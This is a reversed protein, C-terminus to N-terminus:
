RATLEYTQGVERVRALSLEDVADLFSQRDTSRIVASMRLRQVRTEPIVIKRTSYRNLEDAIDQLTAEDFTLRRDTWSVDPAADIRALGWGRGNTPLRDGATRDVAPVRQGREGAM